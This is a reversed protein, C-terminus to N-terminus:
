ITRSKLLGVNGLSLLNHKCLSELVFSPFITFLDFLHIAVSAYREQDVTPINRGKPTCSTPSSIGSLNQSTGSITNTQKYGEPQSAVPSPHGNSGVERLIEPPHVSANANPFPKHGSPDILNIDVSSSRRGGLNFPQYPVFEWNNEPFVMEQPTMMRGNNRPSRLPGQTRGRGM